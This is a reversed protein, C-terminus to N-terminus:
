QDQALDRAMHLYRFDGGAGKALDSMGAMSSGHQQTSISSVFERPRTANNVKLWVYSLSFQETRM